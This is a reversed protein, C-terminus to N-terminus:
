RRNLDRGAATGIYGSVGQAGWGLYDAAAIDSLFNFGEEDRSTRARGRRLRAPSSSSRRRATREGQREVVGPVAARM